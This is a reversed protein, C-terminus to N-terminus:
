RERVRLGALGTPGILCGCTSCTRTTNNEDVVYYTGGRAIAKYKLPPVSNIEFHILFM